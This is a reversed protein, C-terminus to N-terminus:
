KVKMYRLDKYKICMYARHAFYYVHLFVRVGINKGFVIKKSQVMENYRTRLKESNCNLTSLTLDHTFSYDMVYIVASFDRAYKMIADDTCYNRLKPNYRFGSRRIFALSIIMGSNIASIESSIYGIPEHDFYSGKIFFIKTPSIVTNKYYIIPLIIEPQRKLETSSELENFYGVDFTSDQDFLILFDDSEEVKDLVSNYIQSLPLNQPTHHYETTVNLASFISTVEGIDSQQHETPSNDWFILNYQHRSAHLRSLSMKLSLFTPTELIRENYIIVLLSFKM